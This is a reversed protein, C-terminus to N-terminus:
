SLCQVVLSRAQVRAPITIRLLHPFVTSRSAVSYKVIFVEEIPWSAASLRTLTVWCYVLPVSCLPQRIKRVGVIGNKCVVLRECKVMVTLEKEPFLRKHQLFLQVCYCRYQIWCLTQGCAVYASIPVSQRRNKQLRRLKYAPKEAVHFFSLFSLVYVSLRRSEVYVGCLDFHGGHVVVRLVWLFGHSSEFAGKLGCVGLVLVVPGIIGSEDPEYDEEAAADDEDVM